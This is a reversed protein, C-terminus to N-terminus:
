MFNRIRSVIRVIEAVVIPVVNNDPQPLLESLVPLAEPLEVDAGAALATSFKEEVSENAAFWCFTSTM